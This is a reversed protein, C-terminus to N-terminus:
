HVQIYGYTGKHFGMKGNELYSIYLQTKVLGAAPKVYLKRYKAPYKSQKSVVYNENHLLVNWIKLLYRSIKLQFLYIVASM